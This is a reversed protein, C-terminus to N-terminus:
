YERHAIRSSRSKLQTCNPTGHPKILSRKKSSRQPRKGDWANALHQARATALTPGQSQHKRRERKAVFITSRNRGLSEAIVDVSVKTARWTEIHRREELSPKKYPRM